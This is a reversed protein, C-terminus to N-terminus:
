LRPASAACSKDHVRRHRRMNREAGLPLTTCAYTAVHVTASAYTRAREHALPFQLGQNCNHVCTERTCGACFGPGQLLAGGASASLSAISVDFSITLRVLLLRM